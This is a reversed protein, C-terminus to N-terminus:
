FRNGRRYPVELFDLSTGPKVRIAFSFTGLRPAWFFDMEWCHLDRGISLQPYTLRENRFDYGLTVNNIRWNPTLPISGVVNLSHATAEWPRADAGRRFRNFGLTYNYSFRFGEVLSFIAEDDRAIKRGTVLDRLQSLTINTAVAVSLNDLRLPFKGQSLLTTNIRRGVEDRAYVDFRGGSVNVRVLKKFFSAQAGSVSVTSWNLSDASLNYSGSLNFNNVVSVIRATSDAKGQIKSELRNGLTYGIRLATLENAVGAGFPQNPFPLYPDGLAEADPIVEVEEAIRPQEYYRFPREAYGPQYGFSLSPTMIHRLGRLAGIRFRATGYVNTSLSMSATVAHALRAQDLTDVDLYGVLFSDRVLTTDGGVVVLEETRQLSDRYTRRFRELYGTTTYSVNPSLRFYRLLNIPANFTARQQAGFLADDWTDRTFFTTDTGRFDGRGEATVSVQAKRFWSSSTGLDAFPYMAGTSFRLNPASVTVERTNTNQSHRAGANLNWSPHNPFKITYAVNSSLSNTVQSAYTQRQRRAYDNTQFNVNASFNRYPNAKRDQAHRWVLKFSRDFREVGQDEVRNRAAGVDFGGNYRYRKAYDSTVNLRATGRLFIDATVSSHINDNWPFYWGIQQFGFGDLDTYTYDSPFILGSRESTGIPFFGFPLWLPTPVGGLEVNSPGVIVQKGPVVKQKTSRIGYHPTEHDCTTIIASENYVTNDRQAADKAAPDGTVIKTKGGLVYLDGQQTSANTIIGKRTRFNYRMGRATFAQGGQQFSPRETLQGASDVRPSAELISERNDIVIYGAALKIDLYEVEAGGYLHIKQERIDYHISDRM